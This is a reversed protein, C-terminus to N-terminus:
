RVSEPSPPAPPSKPHRRYTSVSPEGALWLRWAVDAARSVGVRPGSLHPLAASARRWRLPGDWVTTGTVDLGLGLAKALNGPGRALAADAVDARRDASRREQAIALGRVVRGARLLVASATGTEGCVLNVCHHMGYSFYVYVRGAPGYMVQNRPTPGRAAHSAPDAEGAYAEVETLVVAVGGASVTSGLLDAAVEVPPRAFYAEIRAPSWGTPAV